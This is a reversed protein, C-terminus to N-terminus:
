AISEIQEQSFDSINDFFSDSLQLGASIQDFFNFKKNDKTKFSAENPFKFSYAGKNDKLKKSSKLKSIEFIFQKCYDSQSYDFVCDINSIIESLLNDDSNLNARLSKQILNIQLLNAFLVKIKDFFLAHNINDNKEATKLIEIIDKLENIKDEGGCYTMLELLDSSSIQEMSLINKLILMAAKLQLSLDLSDVSITSDNHKDFLRKVYNLVLSFEESKNESNEMDLNQKIFKQLTKEIKINKEAIKNITNTFFYNIEISRKEEKIDQDLDTFWNKEKAFASFVEYLLKDTIYINRNFNGNKSTFNTSTGKQYSLTSNEHNVDKSIWIGTNELSEDDSLNSLEGYFFSIFLGRLIQQDGESLGSKFKLFKEFDLQSIFYESNPITIDRNKLIHDFVSSLQSLDLFLDEKRVKDIIFKTAKKQSNDAVEKKVKDFVLLDKIIDMIMFFNNEQTQLIEAVAKIDILNKSFQKSLTDILDQFWQKQNFNKNFFSSSINGTMLCSLYFSGGQFNIMREGELTEFSGAKKISSSVEIISCSDTTKKGFLDEMDKPMQRCIRGFYQMKKKVSSMKYTAVAHRLCPINTDEGARDVTVVVNIKGSAIDQKLKDLNKYNMEGNVSKKNASVFLAPKYGCSELSKCYEAAEQQDKCFFISPSVVNKERELVKLVSVFSDYRGSKIDDLIFKKNTDPIDLYSLINKTYIELIKKRKLGEDLDDVEVIMNKPLILYGDEIAEEFTYRDVIEKDSWGLKSLANKNNGEVTATFGLHIKGKVLFNSENEAEIEELSLEEEDDEEGEFYFENNNKEKKNNKGIDPHRHMEDSIVIGINDLFSHMLNPSEKNIKSFSQYTMIFINGNEDKRKKMNKLSEGVNKEGQDLHGSSIANIRNRAIGASQLDSNMQDVLDIKPVLVLASDQSCILVEGILRSKGAGTPQIIAGQRKGLFLNEAIKQMVRVQNKRLYGKDIEIDVNKLFNKAFELTKLDINGDGLVERIEKRKEESIFACSEISNFVEEIYDRVNVKLNAIKIEAGKIKKPKNM